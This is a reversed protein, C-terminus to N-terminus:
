MENWINGWSGRSAGAAEGAFSDENYQSKSNDVQLLPSTAVMAAPVCEVVDVAPSMYVKKM